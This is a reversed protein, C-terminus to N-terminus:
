FQAKLLSWVADDGTKFDAWYSIYWSEQEDKKLSMEMRGRVQRPVTAYSHAVFLDYEKTTHVSDGFLIESVDLLLLSSLSDATMLNFLHNIYNREKTINWLLFVEHYNNAVSAEPLFVFHQRVTESPGFCRIYNEVNKERIAATFNELVIEPSVPQLWTAQFGAPPEPERTSFPNRCFMVGLLVIVM